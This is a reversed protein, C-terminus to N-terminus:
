DMSVIKIINEDSETSKAQLTMTVCSRIRTQEAIMRRHLKRKVTGVAGLYRDANIEQEFM